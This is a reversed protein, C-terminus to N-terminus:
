VIAAAILGIFILVGDRELLGFSLCFLAIAPPLNSFPLPLTIVLALLLVVVGILSSSLPLTLILSRPKVFREIKKMWPIAREALARLHATEVHHERIMRPLLPARYGLVMQLAPVIITLGAFISIGPILTLAALMMYVGGFSRRRLQYMVFGVRIQEGQLEAVLRQLLASTKEAGPRTTEQAFLSM